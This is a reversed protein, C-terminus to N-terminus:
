QRAAMKSVSSRIHSINADIRAMSIALTQVSLEVKQMRNNFEAIDQSNREIDSMMMSVTWVIAAAQTVLGLLLSAPVSKSIHWGDQTTM